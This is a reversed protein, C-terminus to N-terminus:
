EESDAPLPRRRLDPKRIKGSGTKPLTDVIDVYIPIKYKALRPRLFDRIEDPTVNTGPRPVVFARGVEGWKDDPVGVVAAEAVAPHEFLVGEVEAPYVNEGGSIYMDKVRDVIYLHGEDDLTAVDGSHFWGGETLAAATAEPDRWYGPTVNPGQVLVEGPEGPAVPTLDPRVVRVNAFFVPVGASGVKRVSEGAELFTAGPSTETMGYGQCFVLGREQYARILAVPISAGGSMLTRLSSLDAGAWRPSQVLAAFMATVGFMWTVRHREILDYCRDVDWSPMIVSMGGKLFTPLLTQNLAAVHFLPASILTVETSTVDVGILIHYTNWVLNAHSLMAGKPRGTTGSTYLILAIDDLAVPTDIPTPDGQSLWTEYHLEREAPSELAVVTRLNPLGPLDRVVAAVQAACEPGYVLVSSGSHELMYAIEPAALRFNLPVFIGGLMHTAFMTEAFAIHNPGLYAVRDGARVGADRLRSALRTTREHVETYSYPRDAYVFATRDPSMQARRAPWGGLGANRM